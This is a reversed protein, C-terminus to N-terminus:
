TRLHTTTWLAYHPCSCSCLVVLHAGSQVDHVQLESQHHASVQEEGTGFLDMGILGGELIRCNRGCGHSCSCTNRQLPFPCCDLSMYSAAFIWVAFVLSIQSRKSFTRWLSTLGVVLAFVFVISHFSAFMYGRDPANAEAVTGFIKTKTFYGGGTFLVDWANSLNFYQLVWLAGLFVVAGVTLTGLVLLWPKDRFGTTIYM